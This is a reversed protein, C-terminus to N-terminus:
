VPLEYAQRNVMLEQFTVLEAPNQSLKERRKYRCRRWYILSAIIALAAIGGIVGGVIDNVIGDSV